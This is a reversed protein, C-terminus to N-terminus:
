NWIRQEDLYNISYFGAEKNDKMGYFFDLEDLITNPSMLEFYLRGFSVPPLEIVFNGKRVKMFYLKEVDLNKIEEKDRDYITDEIKWGSKVILREIESFNFLTKVLLKGMILDACIEDEFPFISFPAYNKPYEMKEHFFGPLIRDKRKIWKEQITKHRSKFYGIVKDPDGPKSLDVLEVILHNGILISDYGRNKCRIIANKLEPLHNRQKKKSEYIRLKHGDYNTIGTNVFEVIEKMREKQRTIRSGRVNSSKVEIIEITGDDKFHTVDGVRLFNSIDNLIAKDHIGLFCDGFEHMSNVLGKDASILDIPIKNALIGLLARNYDFYRWVIGDIIERLARINRRCSIEDAKLNDIESKYQEGNDIKGEQHEKELKKWLKKNEIVSQSESILDM